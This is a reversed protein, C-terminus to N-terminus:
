DYNNHETEYDDDYSDKDPEEVSEGNAARSMGAGQQNLDVVLQIGNLDYVEYNHDDMLVQPTPITEDEQFAVKTSRSDDVVREYYPTVVECNTLIYTEIIHRESGNLWRKKSAGSARGPFNFISPQIRTDNMALDDNRSPREFPYMWRYQVPGGVCPEYPLNVILHEMSNFFSPSFIKELNCLMTVVSGELEQVKDVDLTTSCIIQFLLSVETLASWVSESLMERFATPILKKFRIIWECIRMTQERTLVYVAKLMVNPRREDVELKSRNCIIKLDKWANLNNKIKGKIEIMTNFINDFVNKEIHMADLNHRIPHTSWYELEWFINKKTWKHEIKCVDTFLLSVEVAPSFEEVWNRIQEGILRPRAVKMEVQNKTFVKKNRHYPHDPPLFQRHCDFYCANRGNLLYFARTDKMCVPCRIVGASSWGSAMGYGPLDNEIWMLAARMMFTEDKANDRAMVGVHWLNQLEEILPDLYIDILRKPNSSDHIAMTLFKYESSLCM